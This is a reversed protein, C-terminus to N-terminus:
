GGTEDPMVIVSDLENVQGFIQGVLHANTGKHVLIWSGQKALGLDDRVRDIIASVTDNPYVSQMTSATDGFRVFNVTKQDAM